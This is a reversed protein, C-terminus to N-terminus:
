NQQDMIKVRVKIGGKDVAKGKALYRREDDKELWKLDDVQSVNIVDIEGESLVEFRSGNFGNLGSNGEKTTDKLGHPQNVRKKRPAVQM